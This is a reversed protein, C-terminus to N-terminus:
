RYDGRNGHGRKKLKKRTKKKRDARISKGVSTWKKFQGNRKREVYSGGIRTRLGARKVRKKAM